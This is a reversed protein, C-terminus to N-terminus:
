RSLKLPSLAPGSRSTLKKPTPYLRSLAADRRATDAMACFTIYVSGLYLLCDTSLRLFSQWSINVETLANCAVNLFIVFAFVFYGARSLLSRRLKETQGLSFDM